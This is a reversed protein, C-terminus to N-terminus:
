ASDVCVTDLRCSSPSDVQEYKQSVKDEGAAPFYLHWNSLLEM